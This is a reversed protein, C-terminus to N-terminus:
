GPEKQRSRAVPRPACVGCTAGGCAFPVYVVFSAPLVGVRAGSLRVSDEHGCVYRVIRTITM